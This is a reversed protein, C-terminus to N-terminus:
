IELIPTDKLIRKVHRRLIEDELISTSRANPSIVMLDDLQPASYQSLLLEVMKNCSDFTATWLAAHNRGHLDAGTRLLIRLVDMHDSRIASILCVEGKAHINAELDLLLKVTTAHGNKAAFCLPSGGEAHVNAGCTVLYEVTDTHGRAAAVRLPADKETHIDVGQQNLLFAVEGIRGIAALGILALEPDGQRYDGRDLLLSIIEGTGDEIASRLLHDKEFHIDAGNDLLMNVASPQSNEVAHCLASDKDLDLDTELQLLLKLATTQGNGAAFYLAVNIDASKAVLLELLREQIRASVTTKVRAELTGTGMAEAVIEGRAMTHAVVALPAFKFKYVAFGAILEILTWVILSTNSPRNM